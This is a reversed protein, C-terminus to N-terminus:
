AELYSLKSKSKSCVDGFILTTLIPDNPSLTSRIVKYKMKKMKYCFEFAHGYPSFVQLYKIM